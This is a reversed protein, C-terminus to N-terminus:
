VRTEIPKDGMSCNFESAGRASLEVFRFYDSKNSSRCVAVFYKHTFEFKFTRMALLVHGTVFLKGAALNLAGTAIMEDANGMNRPFRDLVLGLGAIGPGGM